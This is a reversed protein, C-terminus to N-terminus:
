KDRILCTRIKEKLNHCRPCFYKFRRVLWHPELLHWYNRTGFYTHCGKQYGDNESYFSSQDSFLCNRLTILKDLQLIITYQMVASIKGWGQPQGVKKIFHITQKRCSSGSGDCM